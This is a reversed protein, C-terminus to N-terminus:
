ASAHEHARRTLLTDSEQCEITGQHELQQAAAPQQANLSRLGQGTGDGTRGTRKMRLKEKKAKKRHVLDARTCLHCWTCETGTHCGKSRFFACPKCRGLAHGASGVSPLDSPVAEDVTDLTDLNPFLGGRVRESAAEYIDPLKGAPPQIADELRIVQNLRAAFESDPSSPMSRIGASSWSPSKDTTSCWSCADAEVATGTVSMPSSIDVKSSLVKSPRRAMTPIDMTPSDDGLTGAGDPVQYCHAPVPSACGSHLGLLRGSEYVDATASAFRAAADRAVQLRAAAVLLAEPLPADQRISRSDSPSGCTAAIETRHAHWPSGPPSTGLVAFAM